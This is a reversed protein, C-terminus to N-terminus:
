LNNFIGLINACLFFLQLVLLGDMKFYKFYIILFGCSLLGLIFGELMYGLSLCSFGVAALSVGIYELVKFNFPKKSCLIKTGNWDLHYGNEFPMQSKCGKCKNFM